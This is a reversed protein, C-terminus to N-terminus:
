DWSSLAAINVEIPLGFEVEKDHVVGYALDSTDRYIKNFENAPYNTYFDLLRGM